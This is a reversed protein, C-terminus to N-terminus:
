VASEAQQLFPYPPSAPEFRVISAPIGSHASLGTCRESILTPNPWTIGDEAKEPAFLELKYRGGVNPVREVYSYRLFPPPGSPYNHGSFQEIDFAVGGNVEHADFSLGGDSSHLFHPMGDVTAVLYIDDDGDFAVKSTRSVAKEPEMGHIADCLHTASWAGNQLTFLSDETLIYPRNRSDFYPEADTPYDPLYGFLQNERRYPKLVLPIDLPDAAPAKGRKAIVTSYTTFGSEGLPTARVRCEWKEGKQPVTLKLDVTTAENPELTLRQADLIPKWAEMDDVEVALAVEVTEGSNNHVQFPVSHQEGPQAYITRNYPTLLWRYERFPFWADPQTTWYSLDKYPDGEHWRTVGDIQITGEQEPLRFQLPLTGALAGPEFRQTATGNTSVPLVALQRDAADLLTVEKTSAPLGKVDISFARALPMFCINAPVGPNSFIIPEQHSWPRRGRSTEILFKPCDTRFGWTSCYGFPDGSVTINIGYVGKHEVTTFFRVSQVSGQRKKAVGDDPITQEDIVQRDPGFFVAQLNAHCSSAKNRDRKYIEIWLPGPEALLYLGGVGGMGLEMTPEGPPAAQRLEPAPQASAVAATICLSLLISTNRRTM